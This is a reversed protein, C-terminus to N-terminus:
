RSRQFMALLTRALIKLDLWPSRHDVYYIDLEACEAASIPERLEHLQTLGIVGPKVLYRKRQWDDLMAYDREPLPRPGVLSMEGRLVNVLQPLGDLSSRQLLRGVATLRPDDRIKFLAGDAENLDELDAQRAEAETHMTRFMLCAFPRQDM